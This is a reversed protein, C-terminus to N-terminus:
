QDGVIDTYSGTKVVSGNDIQIIIDCRAVTSLRHAIMIITRDEELTELARMVEAETVNDLASTAEDLILVAAQRYVARAIGLRQRQGGSLRIGREGVPTQYGEPLSEVFEHLQAIASARLVRSPDIEDPPVGFAINELISADSLYISQPVHAIQAQWAGRNSYDIQNGDVLICGSTPKLLGMLIDVITSKGSGTKGILGVRSGRKITINVNTLAFATKPSYRFSVNRFTLHQKFSLQSSQQSSPALEEPEHELLDLVDRVSQRNGVVQTWGVYVQQLLPLLRQAGLALAGLLPLAAGIGGERGSLWIALAAIVIMGAAELVFRPATGIFQNVAQADRMASDLRMYKALFIPQVKDIIVDRIGGLGEQVTQVRKTQCEAITRGNQYLRRGALSAVLYYMVGFASAASLAVVPDIVILAGIIFISIVVGTLATMLQLIVGSILSHVKNIGALVESTNHRVHYEYPRYLVNKYMSVSLEYGVRFVYKQSVWALTLRVAATLAAVLAFAIAAPVLLPQDQQWTLHSLLRTVRPYRDAIDPTSILALFPMVAGITLLEAAAGILMLGLILIAQRRRRPSVFSLLRTLDRAARRADAM